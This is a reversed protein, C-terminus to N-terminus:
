LKHWDDGSEYGSIALWTYGTVKALREQTTVRCRNDLIYGSVELVCHGGGRETNCVVLRSPLQMDRCIKRCALAFDECDGVIKQTGDYDEAPMVWKERCQYQVADTKYEFNRAVLDRIFNLQDLLDM